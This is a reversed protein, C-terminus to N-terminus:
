KPTLGALIHIHSGSSGNCTANTYFYRCWHQNERVERLAESERSLSGFSIKKPGGHPHGVVFVPIDGVRDKYRNYLKKLLKEYTQLGEKLEKALRLNHSQCEIACWDDDNDSDTQRFGSIIECVDYEHDYHLKATLNEYGGCNIVHSVTSITIVGWSHNEKGRLECTKDPCEQGSTTRVRQVFGSGYCVRDGSVDIKLCVTLHYMQTLLELKELDDWSKQEVDALTQYEGRNNKQCDAVSNQWTISKDRLDEESQFNLVYRFKFVTKDLEPKWKDVEESWAVTYWNKWDGVEGKRILAEVPKGKFQEKMAKFESTKVIEEVQGDTLDVDLFKALKRVSLTLDEKMDEYFMVLIPIDPNERIAQDWNQHFELFGGYDTLGNIWLHIWDEFQGSYNFVYKLLVHHNYHSVSTDKPNRATLIIKNKLKTIQPPLEHHHNYHSVSTDKPNRATLIIKNKLKTIEEPLEDFLVHTNLVRPSPVADYVSPEVLELMLDTKDVDPLEQKVRLIKVIVEWTWHSGSKPYGCLLIDDARLRAKSVNNIYEEGFPPFIRGDPMRTMPLLNGAADKIGANDFFGFRRKLQKWGPVAEDGM